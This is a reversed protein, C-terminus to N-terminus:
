SIFRRISLLYNVSTFKTSYFPTVAESLVCTLGERYKRFNCIVLFSAAASEHSQSNENVLM